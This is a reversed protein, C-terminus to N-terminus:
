DGPTFDLFKNHRRDQVKLCSPCLDYERQEEEKGEVQRMEKIHVVGNRKRCKPRDCERITREAM